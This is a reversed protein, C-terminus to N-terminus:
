FLIFGYFILYIGEHVWDFNLQKKQTAEASSLTTTIERMTLQAM